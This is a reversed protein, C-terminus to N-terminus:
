YKYMALTTIAKQVDYLSMQSAPNQNTSHEPKHFHHAGSSDNMLLLHWLYWYGAVRTGNLTFICVPVDLEYNESVYIHNGPSTTLTKFPLYPLPGASLISM